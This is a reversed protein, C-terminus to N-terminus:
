IPGSSAQGAAEARPMTARGVGLEWARVLKRPDGGLRQHDDLLDLAPCRGQMAYELLPDLLPRDHTGDPLRDLGAGAIRVLEVALPGIPRAGLRAALGARPVERRLAQREELSAHKVLNWAAARADADYLLGRWLAALAETFPEVSADAGRCEITRKLRVEPFVTSLHLEWDAMTARHGQWGERLFRRFTVADLAHYRGDRSLFFMPVDLAWEAYRAFSFSPEFVFPLLGCRDEDMDLWVAARYSLHGNPKGESIPSSAYLATVLSSLGMATRIKDVGDAEDAFDLNVQVTATRKMMEHGLRGHRPLYARMIDYRRKPLWPVDDLRGFPRFGGAIFHIGLPDSIQKLEALHQRLFDRGASASPL